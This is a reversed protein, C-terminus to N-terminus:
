KRDLYSDIVEADKLECLKGAEELTPNHEYWDMNNFLWDAAEYDDEMVFDYEADYTTDKDKEAYYKARNAAIVSVPISYIRGDALKIVVKKNKSM